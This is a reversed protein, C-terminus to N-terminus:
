IVDVFKNRRLKLSALTEVLKAQPLWFVGFLKQSVDRSLSLADEEPDM